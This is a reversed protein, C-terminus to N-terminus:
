NASSRAQLDKILRSLGEVNGFEDSYAELMPVLHVYNRHLFYYDYLRKAMYELLFRINVDSPNEAKRRKWTSFELLWKLTEEDINEMESRIIAERGM